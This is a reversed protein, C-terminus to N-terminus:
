NGIAVYFFASAAPANATFGSVSQGSIGITLLSSTNTNAVVGFLNNPFASSFTTSSNTTGTGWKLIIGGLLFTSGSSAANYQSSSHAADGSYYFLQPLGAVTNTFMAPPSTPVTPVYSADQNFHIATHQGGNNANFSVHDVAILQNISTFNELMPNQDVSPSNNAAPIGTNFNFNTM